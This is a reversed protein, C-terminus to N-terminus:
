QSDFGFCGSSPKARIMPSSRVSRDSRVRIPRSMVWYRTSPVSPSPGAPKVRCCMCFMTKVLRWYAPSSVRSSATASTGTTGPRSAGLELPDPARDAVRAVHQGRPVQLLVQVRAARDQEPAEDARASAEFADGQVVGNSGVSGTLVGRSRFVSFASTCCAKPSAILSRFPARILSSAETPSTWTVVRPPRLTGIWPPGPSGCPWNLAIQAGNAGPLPEAVHLVARGEHLDDAEVFAAHGSARM